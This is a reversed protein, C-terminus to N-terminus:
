VWFSDIVTGVMPIVRLVPNRDNKVEGPCVNIVMPRCICDVLNIEILHGLDGAQDKFGAPPDCVQVM